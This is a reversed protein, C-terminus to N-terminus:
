KPQPVCPSLIFDRNPPIKNDDQIHESACVDPYAIPIQLTPTLPIMDKTTTDEDEDEDWCMEGGEYEYVGGGREGV